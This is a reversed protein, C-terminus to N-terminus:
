NHPLSPSICGANSRPCHRPQESTWLFTMGGDHPWFLSCDRVHHAPTIPPPCWVDLPLPAYLDPLHTPDSSSNSTLLPQDRSQRTHLCWHRSNSALWLLCGTSTRSCCPPTRRAASFLLVPFARKLFSASPQFPHVPLLSCFM